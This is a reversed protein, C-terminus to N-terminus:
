VQYRRWLFRPDENALSRRWGMGYRCPISLPGLGSKGRHVGRDYNPGGEFYFVEVRMPKRVEAVMALLM